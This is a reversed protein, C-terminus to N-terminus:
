EGASCTYCSLLPQQVAGEKLADGEMELVPRCSALLCGQARAARKTGGFSIGSPLSVFLQHFDKKVM